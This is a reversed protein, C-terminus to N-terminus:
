QADETEVERESEIERDIIKSVRRETTNCGSREVVREGVHPLKGLSQESGDVRESQDCTAM